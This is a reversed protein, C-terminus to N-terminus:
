HTKPIIELDAAQTMLGLLRNRLEETSLDELRDTNKIEVRDVPKGYAYEYMKCEVASPLSDAAVRRVISRRYEESSLVGQCFEKVTTKSIIESIEDPAESIQTNIGLSEALSQAM